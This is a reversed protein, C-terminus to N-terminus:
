QTKFNFWAKDITEKSLKIQSRLHAWLSVQKGIRVKISSLKLVISICIPIGVLVFFQTHSILGVSSVVLDVCYGYLVIFTVGIGFSLMFTELMSTKVPKRLTIWSFFSNGVFALIGIGALFGFVFELYM